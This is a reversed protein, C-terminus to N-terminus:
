VLSVVEPRSPISRTARTWATSWRRGITTIVPHPDTSRATAAMRRPTLSKMWFGHSLQSNIRSSRASTSPGSAFAGRVFM